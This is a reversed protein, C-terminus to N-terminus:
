VGWYRAQLSIVDWTFNTPTPIVFDNLGSKLQLWDSDSTLGGIINSTVSSHVLQIKREGPQTSVILKDGSVFNVYEVRFKQNSGLDVEFFNRTGTFDVEFYLGTPASGPNVISPAALDLDTSITTEPDIWFPDPCSFTIQVAPEKSFPNIEFKKIYGDAYVSKDVVSEDLIVIKMPDTFDTGFLTYLADRLEAPSQDTSYDPNLGIQMVVERSNPRRGQYVGGLFLRDAISIDVEVPGLGSADKLIYPDNRTAGVLPLNFTQSSGVLQIKTFKM